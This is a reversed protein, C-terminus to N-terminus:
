QALVKPPFIQNVIKVLKKLLVSTVISLLISLLFYINNDQIYIYNSRLFKIVLGHVIYLEYSIEGLYFIINNNLRVKFSIIIYSIIFISVNVMGKITSKMETVETIFIFIIFIILIILSKKQYQNKFYESVLEINDALLLGILFAISSKYWMNPVNLAYCIIIYMVNFLVIFKVGKDYNTFKFCIYFAFYFVLIVVIYWSYSVSLDFRFFYWLLEKFSYKIGDNIAYFILYFINIIYIPTLIDILKKQIFNDLYNKKNKMSYTLGYGSYFFFMGVWIYGIKSIIGILIKSDINQTLHTIIVLLACIGKINISDKVSFNNNIIKTGRLYELNNFIIFCLIIIYM